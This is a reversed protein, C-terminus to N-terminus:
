SESFSPRNFEEQEAGDTDARRPHKCSQEHNMCLCLCFFFHIVIMFNTTLLFLPKKMKSKLEVGRFM